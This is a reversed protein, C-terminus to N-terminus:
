ITAEDNCLCSSDNHSKIDKCICFEKDSTLNKLFNIIEKSKELNISYWIWSGKPKAILINSEVLIKMHYSLTSQVIDVKDLIDCACMPNCSVMDIIKLRTPDSLAKFINAFDSYNNNM